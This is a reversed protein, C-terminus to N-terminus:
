RQLSKPTDIKAKKLFLNYLEHDLVTITIPLKTDRPKPVPSTIEESSRKKKDPPFSERFHERM